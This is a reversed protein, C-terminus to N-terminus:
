VHTRTSNYAFHTFNNKAVQSLEDIELLIKVIGGFSCQRAKEQPKGATKASSQM